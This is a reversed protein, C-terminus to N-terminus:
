HRNHSRDLDGNKDKDVINTKHPLGREEATEFLIKSHGKTGGM